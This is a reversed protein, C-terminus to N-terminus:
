VNSNRTAEELLPNPQEQQFNPKNQARSLWASLFAPMGGHTKRKRPNDRCWQLAKLLENEVYIGPYSTLYEDLKVKPLVWEKEKGNTPFPQIHSPESPELRPAIYKGNGEKGKGELALGRQSSASYEDFQISLSQFNPIIPNSPRDVRQHKCFNKIYLYSKGDVKFSQVLSKSFLENQLPINVIIEATETSYPFIRARLMDIDHEIVGYDDSVNLMGLFLKTARDSLTGTKSDSWFDPKITRIRM